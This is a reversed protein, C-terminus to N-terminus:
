AIKGVTPEALGASVPKVNVRLIASCMPRRAQVRRAQLTEYVAERLRLRLFLVKAVITAVISAGVSDVEEL